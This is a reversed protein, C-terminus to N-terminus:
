MKSSDLPGESFISGSELYIANSLVLLRLVLSTKPNAPLRCFMVQLSGTQDLLMCQWVMSPLALAVGLVFHVTELACVVVAPDSPCAPLGM